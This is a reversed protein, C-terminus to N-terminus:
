SGIVIAWHIELNLQTTTAAAGLIVVHNGVTNPFTSTMGGEVDPDLYYVVGPTLNWTDCSVPGVPIYEGTEGALVDQTAIGVALAQPEADAQALDVHGDGSIYVVEGASTNSDFIAEMTVSGSGGGGPVLHGAFTVTQTLNLEDELAELQRVQNASDTLNLEDTADGPLYDNFNQELGLEDTLNIGWEMIVAVDQQLALKDRRRKTTNPDSNDATTCGDGANFLTPRVNTM